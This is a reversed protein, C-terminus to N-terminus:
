EVLKQRWLVVIEVACKVFILLMIKFLTDCYKIKNGIYYWARYKYFLNIGDGKRLVSFAHKPTLWVDLAFNPNLAACCLLCIWSFSFFYPKFFLPRTQKIKGNAKNSYPLTGMLHLKMHMIQHRSFTLLMAPFCFSYYLCAQMLYIKWIKISFNFNSDWRRLFSPPPIPPKDLLM